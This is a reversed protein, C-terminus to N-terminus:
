SRFWRQGAPHIKFSLFVRVGEDSQQKIAFMRVVNSICQLVTCCVTIFKILINLLGTDNCSKIAAFHAYLSAPFSCLNSLPSM